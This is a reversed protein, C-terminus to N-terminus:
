VRTCCALWCSSLRYLLWSALLVCGMLWDGTYNIHRAIGWWGSILLKRGQRTELVKHRGAEEPRRRFRDKQLNAGRFLAYGVMNLALIGGAALM